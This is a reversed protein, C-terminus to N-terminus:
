GCHEFLSTFNGIVYNIDTLKEARQKKCAEIIAYKSIDIGISSLNTHEKLNKHIFNTYYGEGCALDCFSFDNM